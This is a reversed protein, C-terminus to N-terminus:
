KRGRERERQRDKEERKNPHNIESGKVSNPGEQIQEIISKLCFHYLFSKFAEAFKGNENRSKLRSCKLIMDIHIFILLLFFCESRRRLQIEIDEAKLVLTM